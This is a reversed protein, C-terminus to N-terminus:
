NVFRDIVLCYGRSTVVVVWVVGVGGVHETGVVGVSGVLGILLTYNFFQAESIEVGFKIDLISLLMLM